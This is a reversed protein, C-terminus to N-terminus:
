EHALGFGDRGGGVLERTQDIRHEGFALFVGILPLVVVLFVVTLAHEMGERM